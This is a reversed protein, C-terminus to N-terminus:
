VGSKEVDASDENKVDTKKRIPIFWAIIAVIVAYFTPVFFISPTPQKGEQTLTSGMLLLFAVFTITAAILARKRLKKKDEDTLRRKYAEPDFVWNKEVFVAKVRKSKSFYLTWIVAFMLGLVDFFMTADRFYMLDIGIAVASAIALALIINRLLRVNGENRRFLLRTAVTVEIADIILVPVVSLFYMVYRFSEDWQTPNLNSAVQPILMLSVILSLYLQIYFYLLWGGIQRKRSLYVIALTVWMSAGAYNQRPANNTAAFAPIASALLMLAALLKLWVNAVISKARDM